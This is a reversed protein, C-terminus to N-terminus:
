LEASPADPIDSATRTVAPEAPEPKPPAAPETTEPSANRSGGAVSSWLKSTDESLQNVQPTYPLSTSLATLLPLPHPPPKFASVTAEM